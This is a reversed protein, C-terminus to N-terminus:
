YLPGLEAVWHPPNDIASSDMSAAKSTQGQESMCSIELFSHVHSANARRRRKKHIKSVVTLVLLPLPEIEYVCQTAWYLLHTLLFSGPLNRRWPLVAKSLYQSFVDEKGGEFVDKERKRRNTAKVRARNQSIVSNQLPLSFLCRVSDCWHPSSVEDQSFM